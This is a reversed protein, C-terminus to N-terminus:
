IFLHLYYNVVYRKNVGKTYKVKINKKNCENIDINNLGVGYKSILKLKKANSIVKKDLVDLGLIIKDCKSILSILRSKSCRNISLIIKASPFAEKLKNVLYKNKSFSVSTVGITEM